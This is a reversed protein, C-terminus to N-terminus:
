YVACCRSSPRNAPAVLPEPKTQRCGKEGIQIRAVSDAGGSIRYRTAYYDGDIHRVLAQLNTMVREEVPVGDEINLLPTVHEDVLVFMHEAVSTLSVPVPLSRACGELGGFARDEIRETVRSFFVGRLSKCSSFAFPGITRVHSDRMDVTAVSLETSPATACVFASQPITQINGQVVIALWQCPTNGFLSRYEDVHTRLHEPPIGRQTADHHNFIGLAEFAARRIEGPGEECSICILKSGYDISYEVQNYELLHLRPFRPDWGLRGLVILESDPGTEALTGVRTIRITTGYDDQECLGWLKGEIIEQPEM